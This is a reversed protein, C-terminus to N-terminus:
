EVSWKDAKKEDKIIAKSDIVGAVTCKKKLEGLVTNSLKQAPEVTASILATKLQSAGVLILEQGKPLLAVDAPCVKVVITVLGDIGVDVDANSGGFNGSVNEVKGPEKSEQDKLTCDDTEAYLVSYGLGFGV